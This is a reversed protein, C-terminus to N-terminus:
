SYDLASVEKWKSNEFSLKAVIEAWFGRKECKPSLAQERHIMQAM